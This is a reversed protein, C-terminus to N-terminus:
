YSRGRGRGNGRSQGRGRGRTQGRGRSGGRGRSSDMANMREQLEPLEQPLELSIGRDDTWPQGGLVITGDETVEVKDEKVDVVVGMYDATMRWLITDEYTLSPFNNQLMSRIYGVNRIPQQVRFLLTVIGENATIISRRPLPKTTQCIMALANSLAKLADGKYYDLFEQATKDFYSLVRQDISSLSDICESARAAIIDQAQPASIKTFNVGARRTINQVLYQQDQKYFTVCVGTKGARGTRGSRHIYTEVDSPPECNIVLDVEPIDIGRASVNTTVLCTFVGNRFGEMTKERQNQAIDGHLAQAGMASLKENMILDNCEGKTDAFIITRGASGRGYVAVIDGLIAARNQWRSTLCLHKVTSSTKHKDTGILDLTVKDPRMYKKVAEKIWVPLTASFLLIQHAPSQESKQEQVSKLIREMDDAFGIDLMQDAEDMCIFLLQDLKLNGRDIHDILRGPTGIIADIGDKMAYYQTDYPTGGYVCLSQFEGAVSSFEKHVQIALERTPAMVMVRPARGKKKFSKPDEKLKKKLSEIMPLSFALTKGTGTRARALVDKGELIPVLSAAQIPFLQVVGRKKLLEITEQSLGHNDLRLHEPIANPDKKNRYDDANQDEVQIDQEEEIEQKPEEKPEETKRKKAKREEKEEKSKKKQKPEKPEKPEETEEAKRKSKKESKDKSKKETKDESKKKSKRDKKPSEQVTEVVEQSRTPM